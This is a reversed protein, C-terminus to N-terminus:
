KDRDSTVEPPYQGNWGGGGGSNGGGNTDIKVGNVYFNGDVKVEGYLNLKRNEATSDKPIELVNLLAGNNGKSSLAFSYGQNQIANIGQLQGGA